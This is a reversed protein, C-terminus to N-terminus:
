DRYGLPPAQGDELMPQYRHDGVRRDLERRAQVLLSPQSYLDYATAALARAAHLMGKQGITTGGAAVAQWSHAPTGPVWCAATLGTTPVVWSIDGVDTSGPSVEGALDDVRSLSSLPRPSALSAQLATAFETEQADYRIAPLGRLNELTVRALTDNPMINHVGGLFEIELETETALAAGEACKVLREYISRAVVADPHRAYYYVEARDPVVNPARGGDTIVHHIRTRDPTHERLLEAAHNMLEVADLASRGQEPAAAAHASRGKFRFKAALRALNGPDGASNSDAPHWHLVADVGDFLQERVMFVKAGGGEEAPTGYLRITGSLEGREIADALAIAAASSAVGFLHHGCGHGWSTDSREARQPLAQQSLGPLADYEALIALVPSGSGYSAMFATPISAVGREVVFGRAELMSALLAASRTEQYGPESWEWIQLAAQWLDASSAAISDVMRQKGADSGAPQSRAAAVGVFLGIM